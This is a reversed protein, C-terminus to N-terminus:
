KNPIYDDSKGGTLEKLEEKIERILREKFEKGKKDEPESNMFGNLSYQLSEENGASM